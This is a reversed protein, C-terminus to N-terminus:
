IFQLIYITLILPCLRSLLGVRRSRSRSLNFIYPLWAALKILLHRLSIHLIKQGSWIVFSTNHLARLLRFYIELDPCALPSPQAIYRSFRGVIYGPLGQLPVGLTFPAPSSRPICPSSRHKFLGFSNLLGPHLDFSIGLIYHSPPNKHFGLTGRTFSPISYIIIVAIYLKYQQM